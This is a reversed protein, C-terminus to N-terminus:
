LSAPMRHQFILQRYIADAKPDRCVCIGAERGLYTFCLSRVFCLKDRLFTSESAPICMRRAARHCCHVDDQSISRTGWWASIVLLGGDDISLLHCDLPLVRHILVSGINNPPLLPEQGEGLARPGRGSQRWLLCVGLLSSLSTFLYFCACNGHPFCTLSLPNVSHSYHGGDASLFERLWGEEDLWWWPEPGEGRAGM